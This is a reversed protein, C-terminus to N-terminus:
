DQKSSAGKKGLKSGAGKDGKKITSTSSSSSSQRPEQASSTTSFLSFFSGMSFLSFTRRKKAHESGATAEGEGSTAPKENIVVAPAPIPTAAAPERRERDADQQAENSLQSSAELPQSTEGAEERQEILSFMYPGLLIVSGHLITGAVMNPIPWKQWPADWDLPIVVCGLWSGAVWSMPEASWLWEDFSEIRCVHM